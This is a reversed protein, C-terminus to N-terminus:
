NSSFQKNGLELAHTRVLFMNPVESGFLFPLLKYSYIVMTPFITKVQYMDGLQMVFVYEIVSCFLM